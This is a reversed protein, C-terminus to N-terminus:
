NNTKTGVIGIGIHDFFTLKMDKYGYEKYWSIVEEKSHKWDFKPSFADFLSLGLEKLSRNVRRSGKHIINYTNLYIWYIPSLAYCITYLFPHPLNNFFWKNYTIFKDILLDLKNKYDNSYVMIFSKGGSKLGYTISEFGKKTDPTHHLVGDSFVFDFFDKKFPLFHVNAQIIHINAVSGSDKVRKMVEDVSFSLDIAFLEINYASLAVEIEGHGCGADLITKNNLDGPHIDLRNIFENLRSEPHRGWARDSNGMAKWEATFSKQTHKYDKELLSNNVLYCNYKTIQEETLLHLYLGVIDQFIFASNPLMRPIGKIIPYVTKESILLGTLVEDIDKKIEEFIILEFSLQTYPCVLKSLIEIKM